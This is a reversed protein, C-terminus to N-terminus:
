APRHRSRNCVETSIKLLQKAAEEVTYPSGQFSVAVNTRWLELARSVCEGIEAPSDGQAVLHGRELLIKKLHHNQYLIALIPRDMQLYEYVKAPITESSEDPNEILVLADSKKMATLADLRSVKGFFTVIEPYKFGAILKESFSDLTGYLDFRVEDALSPNQDIVIQLGELFKGPNRAGGFSGFHAFRCSNGKSYTVCPIHPPCAGPYIVHTKSVDANTRQVARQRAGETLFVVASAKRLIYRELMSNVKLATKNRKKFQFVIPDQLEAIWPMKTWRALLGAASTLRGPPGGTSYILDHRYKRCLLLGRLFAAAFWSWESEINIIAKEVLYLPLVLILLPIAALKFVKNRRKLYRLEFRLGSPAISPVRIIPSM